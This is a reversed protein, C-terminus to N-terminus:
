QARLVWFAAVERVCDSTELRTFRPQHAEYGEFLTMTLGPMESVNAVRFKYGRVVRWAGGDALQYTMCLAYERDPDMELVFSLTTAAMQGKASSYDGVLQPSEGLEWLEIESDAYSVGDEGPTAVLRPKPAQACFSQAMPHSAACKSAGAIMISPHARINLAGGCQSSAEAICARYGSLAAACSASPSAADEALAAVCDAPMNASCFAAPNECLEQAAAPAALGILAAGIWVGRM